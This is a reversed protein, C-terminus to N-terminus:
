EVNAVQCRPEKDHGDGEMSEISRDLATANAVDAEDCRYDRDPCECQDQANDTWDFVLVFVKDSSSSPAPSSLLILGITKSKVIEPDETLV